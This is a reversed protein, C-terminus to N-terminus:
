SHHTSSGLKFQWHFVDKELMRCRIPMRHIFSVNDRRGQLLQPMQIAWQHRKKQSERSNPNKRKASAM